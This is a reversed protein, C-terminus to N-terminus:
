RACAVTLRTQITQQADASARRRNVQDGSIRVVLVSCRTATVVARAVGDSEHGDDADGAWAGSRAHTHAGVAIVGAQLDRAARLTARARDGTAILVTSRHPPIDAARLWGEVRDASVASADNTVHLAAIRGNRPQAVLHAAALVSPADGDNDVVALVTSAISTHVDRAILVPRGTRRLLRATTAVEHRPFLHSTATPGTIILDADVSDAYAALETAPDGARVEVRIHAGGAVSALGHLAGRLTRAREEPVRGRVRPSSPRIRAVNPAPLDPTVHLLTLEATTAFHRGAWSAVALSASDFDVGVVVRALSRAPADHVGPMELEDRVPLRM